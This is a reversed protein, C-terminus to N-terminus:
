NNTSISANGDSEVELRVGMCSSHLGNEEGDGEQAFVDCNFFFM